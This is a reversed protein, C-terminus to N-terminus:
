RATPESIVICSRNKTRLASCIEAADDASLSIFRARFLAEGSAGEIPQVTRPRDLFGGALAAAELEQQAKAKSSYAGIQVNWAPSGPFAGDTDGEGWNGDIPTLSALRAREYENLDDPVSSAVAILAGMADVEAESADANFTTAAAAIQNRLGEDGVVTPVNRQLELQALLTPKLRPSPTDRHLSAILSPHNDIEAFANDLIERMHADRTRVSRGGLVIGILRNGDHSASTALNFGSVRTYGTKLGEAGPYTKAVSNHTLYSRGNWDFKDTSFYHYYEPFDQILRRALTALDRATTRQKTNPLGSANRFTTRSMGLAHAKETMKQAFRWESGSISEAVVVAVDNASKVVLAKIATEVDITDGSTLGLKSPPQGAAQASVTLDSSLNLRGADLEEFLLYLTMMKTLSAPYRYENSYRDFLVDGSDAHIVYAAYKSNASAPAAVLGSAILSLLLFAISRLVAIM